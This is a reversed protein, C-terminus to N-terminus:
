IYSTVNEPPENYRPSSPLTIIESKSAVLSVIVSLPEPAGADNVEPPEDLTSTADFMSPSVTIVKPLSLSLVPVIVRLPHTLSMM